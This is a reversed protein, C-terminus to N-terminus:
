YRPDTAAPGGAQLIEDSRHAVADGGCGDLVHVLGAKADAALGLPQMDGRGGPEGEVAGTGSAAAQQRVDDANDHMVVPLGVVGHRAHQVGQTASMSMSFSSQACRM